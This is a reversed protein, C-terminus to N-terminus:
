KKGRKKEALQKVAAQKVAAKKAAAKKAVPTPQAHIVKQIQAVTGKPLGKKPHPITLVFPVGAKKFQHHSGRTRVFEWGNDKALKILDKSSM